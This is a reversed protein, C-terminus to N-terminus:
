KIAEVLDRVSKLPVIRQDATLGKEMNKHYNKAPIYINKFGHKIAENVRPVGNTVPRIEGTLSIEGMWCSSAPIVQDYVSSVLAAAMALDTSTEIDKLKLGGVLAINIDHYMKVGGHKKLVATILSLRSYSVGICNRMQKEGEVETVLAQIELMLNRAGERVCTIASGSYGTDGSLFFRSPNDVSLMGRETMQFIGVQDTDGFRNKNPRITRINSDGAVDIHMLTDVIHMLTQPGAAESAKNVQGVIIMTVNHTKAYRNLMAACAKVQSVGGASGTAESTTMAQISDVIVFKAQLREIEFLLSEVSDTNFLYFNDDNYQLGLREEARKKYQDASEEATNFLFVAGHSLTCALESLLTTKGAGPDGSLLIVSGIVLGGGLVLDLESLGTPIRELSTTEVQSLKKAQDGGSGAYGGQGKGTAANIAQSVASGSTKPVSFETITNWSKCASCQGQWRPYDAGCDSCLYATKVKAM